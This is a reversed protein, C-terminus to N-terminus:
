KVKLLEVKYVLSQNSGIKDGDGTLGYALYSPIIMLSSGGENMLLIGEQLGGPETSEGLRFTLVGSSDSSYCYTGDLLNIKYSVTVDSNKAPKRGKGITIHLLHLGTKTEEMAYNYRKIYDSINEQEENVFAKNIEMLKEPDDPKNETSKQPKNKCSSICIVAAIFM